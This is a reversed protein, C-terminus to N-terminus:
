DGILAGGNLLVVYEARSPEFVGVTRPYLLVVADFVGGVSEMAYPIASSLVVQAPASWEGNQFETGSRLDFGRMSVMRLPCDRGIESTSWQSPVLLKGAGAWVISGAFVTLGNRASVAAAGGFDSPSQYFIWEGGGRSGDLLLRGQGAGAASPFTADADARARAAAEDGGGYPGCVFTHGVVSLSDYDLRVVATCSGMRADPGIEMALQATLTACAPPDPSTEVPVCTGGGCDDDCAWGGDVCTCRSPKCGVTVDCRYSPPCANM